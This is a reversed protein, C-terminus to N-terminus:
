EVIGLKRFGWTEWSVSGKFIWCYTNMITKKYIFLPWRTILSAPWTSCTTCGTQVRQKTCLVGYWSRSRCALSLFLKVNCKCLNVNNYVAYVAFLIRIIYEWFYFKAAKIGLEMNVCRCTLSKCIGLIPGGIKSCGFQSVSQPCILISWLYIFTCIPVSAECNGKQSYKKGIKLVTYRQLSYM